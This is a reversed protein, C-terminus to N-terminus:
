NKARKKIHGGQRRRIKVMVPSLVIMLLAFFIISAFLMLVSFWSQMDVGFFNVNVAYNQAIADVAEEPLTLAMEDLAGSIFMDRFIAASYTGPLFCAAYEMGKGLVSLPIYAGVLFGIAASIIGIFGGLAGSSRFFSVAVTAFLTSSLASLFVNGIIAFVQGANLYWGSIALYILGIALIIFTIILTSVYSAAMYSFRVVSGRVPSSDFDASIGKENDSVTVSSVSVAVTICTVALLGSLMWGNVVGEILDDSILGEPISARLSDMQTEGLFAVYLFLVILPALLSFFVQMKDKFFLKLNRVTLCSFVYVDNKLNEAM